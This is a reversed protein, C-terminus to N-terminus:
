GLEIDHERRERGANNGGARETASRLIDSLSAPQRDDEFGYERAAKERPIQEFNDDIGNFVVQKYHYGATQVVQASVEEPLSYWAKVADSLNDFSDVVYPNGYRADYVLLSFEKNVDSLMRSFDSVSVDMQGDLGTLNKSLSYHVNVGFVTLAGDKCYPTADALLVAYDVWGHGDILLQNISDLGGGITKLRKDACYSNEFGDPKGGIPVIVSPAPFVRSFLDRSYVHRVDAEDVLYSVVKDLVPSLAVMEESLDAQKYDNVLVKCGNVCHLLDLSFQGNEVGLAPLGSKNEENDAVSQFSSLAENLSHFQSKSFVSKKLDEIVYFVFDRGTVVDFSNM